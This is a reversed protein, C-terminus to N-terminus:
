KAEARAIAARADDIQDRYVGPDVREVTEIFGELVMVLEDKVADTAPPTAAKQAKRIQAVAAAITNGMRVSRQRHERMWRKGLPRYPEDPDPLGQCTILNAAITSLDTLPTRGGAGGGGGQSQAQAVKDGQDSEPSPTIDRVAYAAIEDAKARMVHDDESLLRFVGDDCSLVEWRFGSRFEYTHGVKIEEPTM